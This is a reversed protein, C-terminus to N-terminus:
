TTLLRRDDTPYEQESLRPGLNLTGILEGQSVLPVVLAVGAERMARVAPSDLELRAIEVPGSATQLYALLPDSEAIGVAISRDDTPRPREEIAPTTPAASPDPADAHRRLLRRIPRTLETM